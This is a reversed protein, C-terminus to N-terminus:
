HGHQLNVSTNKLYSWYRWFHIGMAFFSFLPNRMWTNLLNVDCITTHQQYIVIRTGLCHTFTIFIVLIPFETMSSAVHSFRTCSPYKVLFPQIFNYVLSKQPTYQLHNTPDVVQFGDWRGKDFTSRRCGIFIIWKDKHHIRRCALWWCWNLHLICRSSQLRSCDWSMIGHELQMGKLHQNHNVLPCSLNPRLWFGSKGHFLSLIRIIGKTGFDLLIGAQPQLCALFFIFEM